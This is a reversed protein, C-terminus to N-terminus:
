RVFPDRPFGDSETPLRREKDVFAVLAELYSLYTQLQEPDSDGESFSGVMGLSALENSGPM